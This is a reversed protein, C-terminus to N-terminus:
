STRVFRRLEPDFRYGDVDDRMAGTDAGPRDYRSVEVRAHCRREVDFVPVPVAWGSDYASRDAWACHLSGCERACRCHSMAPVGACFPCDALRVLRAAEQAARAQAYVDLSMTM